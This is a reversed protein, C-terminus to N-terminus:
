ASGQPPGGMVADENIGSEIDDLLESLAAEIDARKVGEGIMAGLLHAAGHLAVSFRPLEDFGYAEEPKDTRGYGRMDTAIVRFRRSFQAIQYMWMRHDCPNAHLMVLPPGEGAVEYYTRVGNQTCYPM